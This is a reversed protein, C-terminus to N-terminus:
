SVKRKNDKFINSKYSSYMLFEVMNSTGEIGRRFRSCFLGSFEPISAIRGSIEAGGAGGGRRIAAPVLDPPEPSKSTMGGWRRRGAGGRRYWGKWGGREKM